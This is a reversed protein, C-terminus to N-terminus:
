ETLIMLTYVPQPIPSAPRSHIFSLTKERRIKAYRLQHIYCPISVRDGELLILIPKLWNM